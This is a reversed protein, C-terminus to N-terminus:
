DNTIVEKTQISFDKDVVRATILQGIPKQFHLISESNDIFCPAVVDSQASLVEVLELGCKIKEATSLKSFPKKNMEIEFTPKEEGNKQLEYLKVSINSFLDSVKKVMLESRKAKFVKIADVTCLAKNRDQRITEKQEEAETIEKQLNQANRIKNLHNEATFGTEDLERIKEYDTADNVSLLSELKEKAGKYQAVMEKGAEKAEEFRQRQNEKITAISEGDLAQGCTHCTENIQEGKIQNVMVKQQNIKAELNRSEYELKQKEQNKRQSEKGREKLERIESQIANIREILEKESESPLEVKELQEKLTLFKEATREYAKDNKNYRDRNIKEIDELSKKKLEDVLYRSEVKEMLGLIEKNTPESIYSLLQERQVQWNQTCFYTPNFLSLFLDKDFLESVLENFKTAKEPVENIYYKTTKKQIRSLLIKKDDVQILLEVKTEADKDKLPKPDLKSGLADIGYLCWTVAEAVSSKGAGNRGEITTIDAFEINSKNHNKFNELYLSIFQIKM